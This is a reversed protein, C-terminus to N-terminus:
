RASEDIEMLIDDVSPRDAPESSRYVWLVSGVGDLLVDGGLQYPDAKVWEPMQGQFFRKIYYWITAPRYVRHIPRREIGFFRYGNRRPDRLIPFPLPEKRQFERM